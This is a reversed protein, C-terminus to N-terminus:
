RGVITYGSNYVIDNELVLEYSQPSASRDPLTFSLNSLIFMREDPNLSYFQTTWGNYIEIFNAGFISYVYYYRYNGFITQNQNLSHDMLWVVTYYADDQQFHVDYATTPKEPILTQNLWIASSSVILIAIVCVSITKLLSGKSAPFSGKSTSIFRQLGIYVPLLLFPVSFAAIRATYDTVAHVLFSSYSGVLLILGLLILAIRKDTKHKLIYIFTSFAIVLIAVVNIRTLWVMSQFLADGTYPVRVGYTIFPQPKIFNIITNLYSAFSGYFLMGMFLFYIFTITIVILYNSGLTKQRLAKSILYYILFILSTYLALPLYIVNLGIILLLVVIMNTLKIEHPVIVFRVLLANIIIGFLWYNPFLYIISQFSLVTVVITLGVLSNQANTNLKKLLIYFSPFVALGGVFIGLWNYVRITSLGTILSTIGIIIPDGPSSGFNGFIGTVGSLNNNVVAEGARVNFYSFSVCNIDGNILLLAQFVMVLSLFVYFSLISNTGGLRPYVFKLASFVAFFAVFVIILVNLQTRFLGGLVIYSSIAIAMLVLMLKELDRKICYSCM